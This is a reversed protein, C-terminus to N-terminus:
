PLARARRWPEQELWRKGRESADALLPLHALVGCLISQEWAYSNSSIPREKSQTRTLQRLTEPLGERGVREHLNKLVALWQEEPRFDVFAPV